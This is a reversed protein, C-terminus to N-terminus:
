SAKAKLEELWKLTWDVSAQIRKLKGDSSLKPHKLVFDIERLADEAEDALTKAINEKAM